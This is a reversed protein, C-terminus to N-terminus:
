KETFYVQKDDSVTIIGEAQPNSENLRDIVALASYIKNDINELNGLKITIRKDYIIYNNNIDTSSVGTVKELKLRNVADTITLLNKKIKKNSLEAVQGIVATKLSLKDLTVSNKNKKASTELVKFNGDLLTYTKDSNLVSYVTPTETINVVITSPIKRQIDAKYIYPLNEELKKAAGKTDCVFLNKGKEIPLVATIEQNNYKKNGKITITNINFLVTLSLVIIVAAIAVVLLIYSLIKRRLKASKRKKDEDARIENRTKPRDNQLGSAKTRSDNHYERESQHSRRKPPELGFSGLSDNLTSFENDRGQSFTRKVKKENEKKKM